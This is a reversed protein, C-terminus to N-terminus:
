LDTHLYYFINKLFAPLETGIRRSSIVEKPLNDPYVILRDLHLKMGSESVEEESLIKWNKKGRGEKFFKIRYNLRINSVILCMPYRFVM